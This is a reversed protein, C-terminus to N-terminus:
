KRRSHFRKLGAGNSCISVQRCATHETSSSLDAKAQNLSIAQVLRRHMSPRPEDRWSERTGSDDVGRWETVGPAGNAVQPAKCARQFAERMALIQAPRFSYEVLRQKKSM